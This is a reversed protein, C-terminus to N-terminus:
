GKSTRGRNLIHLVKYVHVAPKRLRVLARDRLPEFLTLPFFFLYCALSGAMIDSFWHGGGVLRPLAFIVMGVAAAVGYWSRLRYIIYSGIFMLVTAHDGPFSNNSAVKVKWTIRETLDSLMVAQKRLEDIKGPSMRHFQISLESIGSVLLLAITMYLGFQVLSIREEERPNRLYYIVFLLVMWSLAALDFARHNAIGWVTQMAASNRMTGNLALFVNSDVTKWLSDQQTYRLFWVGDEDHYSEQCRMWSSFVTVALGMSLVILLVARITKYKKL